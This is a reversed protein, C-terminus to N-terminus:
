PVYESRYFRHSSAASDPDIFLFPSAPLVVNTLSTWANTDALNTSYQINFAAGVPGYLTIGAYMHIANQWVVGGLAESLVWADGMVPCHNGGYITMRQTASNYSAALARRAAPLPNALTLNTWAPTGATTAMCACTGM